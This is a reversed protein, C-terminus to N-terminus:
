QLLKRRLLSIQSHIDNKLKTREYTRYEQLHNYVLTDDGNTTGNLLQTAFHKLEFQYHEEFEQIKFEYVNFSINLIHLM